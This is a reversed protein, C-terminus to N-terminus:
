KENNILKEKYENITNRMLNCEGEIVYEDNKHSKIYEIIELLRNLLHIIDETNEEQIKSKIFLDIISM